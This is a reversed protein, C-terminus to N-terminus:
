VVRLEQLLSAWNRDLRETETESRASQDWSKDDEPHDVDVVVITEGRPAANAVVSSFEESIQGVANFPRDIWGSLHASWCSSSGTLDCQGVLSKTSCNQLTSNMAARSRMPRPSARADAKLPVSGM